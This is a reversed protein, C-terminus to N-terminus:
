QLKFIYLLFQNSIYCSNIKMSMLCKHVMQYWSNLRFTATHGLSSFTRPQTPLQMNLPDYLVHRLALKYNMLGAQM